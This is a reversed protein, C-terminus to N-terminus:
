VYTRGRIINHITGVNVSLKAALAYMNRDKSRWIYERRVWAAQKVTLKSFHHEAGKLKSFRGRAVADSMNQPQTGAYLHMPNICKRNDCDHNVQEGPLLKRVHREFSYRHARVQTGNIAVRAYGRDTLSFNWEWCGGPSVTYWQEFPLDVIRKPKSM